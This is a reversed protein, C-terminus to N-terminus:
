SRRPASGQSRTTSSLQAAKWNSRDAFVESLRRRHSQKSYPSSRIQVTKYQIIVRTSRFDAQEQFETCPRSIRVGSALMKGTPTKRRRLIPTQIPEWAKPSPEIGKVRETQLKDGPWSNAMERKHRHPQFALVDTTCTSSEGSRSNSMGCRFGGNRAFFAQVAGSIRSDYRVLRNQYVRCSTSCGRRRRTMSGDSSSPVKQPPTPADRQADTAIEYGFDHSKPANPM